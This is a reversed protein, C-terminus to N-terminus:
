EDGRVLQNALYDSIDEDFVTFSRTEWMRDQIYGALGHKRLLFDHYPEASRIRMREIWRKPKVSKPKM